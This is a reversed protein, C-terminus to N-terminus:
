SDIAMPDHKDFRMMLMVWDANAYEREAPQGGSRKKAMAMTLPTRKPM